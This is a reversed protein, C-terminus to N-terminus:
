SIRACFNGRWKRSMLSNGVHLWDIGTDPPQILQMLAAGPGDVSGTFETRHIGRYELVRRPDPQIVDVVHRPSSWLGVM